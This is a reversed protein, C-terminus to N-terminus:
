LIACFRELLSKDKKFMGETYCPQEGNRRVIDDIMALLESVQASQENGEARNNFALRRNGCTQILSWLQKDGNALFAELTREELDEKRTFLFIMYNKAEFRFIKEIEKAVDKEEQTFRGLQMVHIIAHIGPSLLKVSEGIEKSTEKNRAYTDFLGPTDVVTIKRGDIFVAQRECQMTVSSSSIKSIFKKAGLITNGTASKGAGTKGVLVIRLDSERNRGSAAPPTAQDSM